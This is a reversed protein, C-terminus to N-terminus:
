CSSVARPFYWRGGLLWKCGRMTRFASTALSLHAPSPITQVTVTPSSFLFCHSGNDFEMALRTTIRRTESTKLCEYALEVFAQNGGKPVSPGPEGRRSPGRVSSRHSAGLGAPDVRLSDTVRRSLLSIALKATTEQTTWLRESVGTEGDFRCPGFLGLDM